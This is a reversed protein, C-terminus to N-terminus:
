ISKVLHQSINQWTSHYIKGLATICKALHQSINQWTSHYIKGLATIYKALHQSIHIFHRILKFCVIDYDYNDDNPMVGTQPMPQDGVQHV